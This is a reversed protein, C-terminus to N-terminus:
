SSPFFNFRLPLHFNLRRPGNTLSPLHLLIGLWSVRIFFCYKNRSHGQYRPRYDRAKRKEHFDIISLSLGSPLSSPFAIAPLWRGAKGGTKLIKTWYNGRCNGCIVAIIVMM